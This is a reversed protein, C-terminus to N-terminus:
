EATRIAYLAILQMKAHMWRRSFEEEFVTKIIHDQQFFEGWNAAIYRWTRTRKKGGSVDFNTVIEYVSGVYM